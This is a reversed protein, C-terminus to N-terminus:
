MHRKPIFIFPDESVRNNNVYNNAVASRNNEEQYVIVDGRKTTMLPINRANLMARIEPRPHDYQNDYNSSCIALKPRVADLFEPTTFGNNAGHHALILVDTEPIISQRALTQSIEASECDGLSLVNFGTSRFLRILSMDNKCDVNYMSPYIVDNTGMEPANNLSNIYEESIPVVNHVYKQHIDDYKMLLTRCFRGEETDPVYSPVEIRDPRFHNIIQVLDDYFCHDSDWSTIHLTDIRTKGHIALDRQIVERGGLPLRGEILTYHNQKFYSFLSGENELQFARFKTQYPM